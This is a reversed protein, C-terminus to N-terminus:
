KVNIKIPLTMTSRITKGNHIAPKWKPMKNFAYVINQEINLDDDIVKVNTLSGDREVTFTVKFKINNSSNHISPLELLNIFNEYFVNLGEYPEAKKQIFGHTSESENTNVNKLVNFQGSKEDKTELYKSLTTIQNENEIGLYRKLEETTKQSYENLRFSRKIDEITNKSKSNQPYSFIISYYLPYSIIIYTDMFMPINSASIKTSTQIVEVSKLEGLNSYKCSVLKCDDFINKNDENIMKGFTELNPIVDKLSSNIHTYPLNAMNITIGILEGENTYIKNLDNSLNPKFNLNEPTKFYITGATEEKWSLPEQENNNVLISDENQLDYTSEVTYEEKPVDKCGVIITFLSLLTLFKM